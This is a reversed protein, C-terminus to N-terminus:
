ARGGSRAPHRAPVHGAVDPSVNVTFESILNEQLSRVGVIFFSGLGVALLVIRAQSGPRSLQLVAHRLPFWRAQALPAIARILGIGALHLVLATAAFGIPWSRRRDRLSGAQWVTLASWAPSRRRGIVVIQM